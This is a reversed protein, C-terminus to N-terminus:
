LARGAYDHQGDGAKQGPASRDRRVPLTDPEDAALADPKWENNNTAARKWENGSNV